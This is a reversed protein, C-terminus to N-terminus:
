KHNNKRHRKLLGATKFGECCEDCKFKMDGNFIQLLDVHDTKMHYTMESENKFKLECSDCVYNVLDCDVAFRLFRQDNIIMQSDEKNKMNDKQKNDEISKSLSNELKELSEKQKEVFDEQVKM